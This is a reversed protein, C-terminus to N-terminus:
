KKVSWTKGDTEIKVTSDRDTRYTKVNANKLLEIIERSPHGYNNKGVFIIGVEPKIRGLDEPTVAGRSGQHSVKLIEVDSLSIQSLVESEADGTFLVDFSGFSAKIVLSTSNPDKGYGGQYWSDLYSQNPWLIQFIVNKGFILRDGAKLDRASLKEKALLERFKRYIDTKSEVGTSLYHKVKYRELVYTLGTLHDAHPHTLFIADIERDWFPLNNQLCDLVKEDPGGDILIDNRSPTRIFIADGQGVDCFVVHMKSDFFRLSESIFISVLLILSLSLIALYRM